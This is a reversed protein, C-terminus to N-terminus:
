CDTDCDDFIANELLKKDVNVPSVNKKNQNEIENSVEKLIKEFASINIPKTTSNGVIVWSYKENAPPAPAPANENSFFRGICNSM